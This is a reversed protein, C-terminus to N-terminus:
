APVDANTAGRKRVFHITAPIAAAGLLGLGIWLGAGSALPIPLGAPGCTASSIVLDGTGLPAALLELHFANVTLSGDDNQIQENLTIRGVLTDLLPLRIEVVTNAAPEVAVDALGGLNLGALTSSGSVGEETAMCEATIAEAGAPDVFPLASLVPLDVDATTARSSVAGTQEDFTAETEIVGTSLIGPADVGAFTNTFTGYQGATSVEAFPGLNVADAGVLTVNLRAGYASADGPAAAAPAAGALVTAATAIVLLGTRRWTHTKM